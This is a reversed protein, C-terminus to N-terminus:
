YLLLLMETFYGDLLLIVTKQFIGRLYDDYHNGRLREKFLNARTETATKFHKVPLFDAKGM